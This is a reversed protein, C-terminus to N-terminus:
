AVLALAKDKKAAVTAARKQAPTLALVEESNAWEARIAVPIEAIISNIFLGIGGAQVLRFKGSVVLNANEVFIRKNNDTLPVAFKIPINTSDIATGIIRENEVKVTLIFLNTTAIHLYSAGAGISSTFLSVNLVPKIATAGDRQFEEFCLDGIVTIFTNKLLSAALLALQGDFRVEFWDCTEIKIAVPIIVTGNINISADRGTYGSLTVQMNLKPYTFSYPKELLVVIKNGSQPLGMGVLYKLKYFAL